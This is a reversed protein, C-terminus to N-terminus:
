RPPSDPGLTPTFRHIRVGTLGSGPDHDPATFGSGPHHIVRDIAETEVGLGADRGSVAAIELYQTAVDEFRGDGVFLRIPRM